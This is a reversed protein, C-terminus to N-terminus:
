RRRTNITSSRRKNWVGACASDPAETWVASAPDTDQGFIQKYAVTSVDLGRGGMDVVLVYMSKQPDAANAVKICKGCMSGKVLGQVATIRELRLEAYPMECAPPNNALQDHMIVWNHPTIVQNGSLSAFTSCASLVVVALTALLLNPLM